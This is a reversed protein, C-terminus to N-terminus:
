PTNSKAVRRPAAISELGEDRVVAGAAAPVSDPQDGTVGRGSYRLAVIAIFVLSLSCAVVMALPAGIQNALAGVSLQGVPMLGWTLLYISFVRGRVHDDVRLQLLTQSIALFCASMWGTAFLLAVALPVIPTIAFMLVLAAFGSATVVQAKPWQVLRRSRAVTLAGAVTGLGTSALLIGLGTSGIGLEDQAFVPMMNLYPIVLINTALALLMLNVLFPDKAVIQLGMIPSPRGSGGAPSQSVPVAPLRVTTLLAIMQLAAAVAFTGAIGITAILIGALAPGVVRTANQGAASLAMANALHDRQVLSSIITTRAPFNFSMASGYGAALVLLSWPKMLDLGVLLAFLTALTMTGAQALFLVLRRDYRDLVIGAPVSLILLPIGSAFGTLGVFLPSDMLQLALWGTAVQYMWFASNSAMTGLMLMRFAPYVRVSHM